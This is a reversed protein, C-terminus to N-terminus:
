KADEDVIEFMVKGNLTKHLRLVGCNLLAYLSQRAQERVADYVQGLDAYAPAIGTNKKEAIATRVSEFVLGNMYSEKNM